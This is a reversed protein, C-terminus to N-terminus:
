SSLKPMCGYGNPLPHRAQQRKKAREQGSARAGLGGEARLLETASIDTGSDAASTVCSQLAALPEHAHAAADPLSQPTAAITVTLTVTLTVSLNRNPANLKSQIM